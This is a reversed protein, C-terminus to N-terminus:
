YYFIITKGFNFITKLQAHFFCVQFRESQLYFKTLVLQNMPRAILRHTVRQLFQEEPQITQIFYGQFMAGMDIKLSVYAPGM